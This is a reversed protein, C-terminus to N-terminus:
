VIEPRDAKSPKTRLLKGAYVFTMISFVCGFIFHLTRENIILTSFLFHGCGIFIANAVLSGLGIGVLYSLVAGKNLKL